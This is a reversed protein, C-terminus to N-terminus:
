PIGGPFRFFRHSDGAATAMNRSELGNGFSARGPIQDVLELVYKLVKSDM